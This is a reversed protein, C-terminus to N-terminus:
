RTSFKQSLIDYFADKKFKVFQISIERNKMVRIVKNPSVAIHHEGDLIMEATQGEDALCVMMERDANFIMSRSFLAHPCIPTAVICNLDTDLIPGGASMSYATSGTPTALILGDARYSIGHEAYGATIDILNELGSKVIVLDNIFDYEKGNIEVTFVMRSDIEFDGTLLRRLEKLESQEVNALFGIRGANIGVIAKGARAARKATHMITGDGGVAVVFDAEKYLIDTEVLQYDGGLAADDTLLEVGDPILLEAIEKCVGYVSPKEKNAIVAIKM